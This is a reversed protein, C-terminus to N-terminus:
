SRFMDKIVDRLRRGATMAQVLADEYAREGDLVLNLTDLAEDLDDEIELLRETIGSKDFERQRLVAVAIHPYLDFKAESAQDWATMKESFDLDDFEPCVADLVVDTMDALEESTAIDDLNYDFDYDIGITEDQRARGTINM